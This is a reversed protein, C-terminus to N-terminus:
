TPAPAPQPPSPPALRGTLDRYDGAAALELFRLTGLCPETSGSARFRLLAIADGGRLGRSAVGALRLIGPAQEHWAGIVNPPSAGGLFELIATDFELEADYAGVEVGAGPLELRLEFSLLEADRSDRRLKAVTRIRDSKGSDSSSAGRGEAAPRGPVGDGSGANRVAASRSKGEQAPPVRRTPEAATNGAERVTLSREDQPRSAAENMGDLWALFDTDEFTTNADVADRLWEAWDDIRRGGQQSDHRLQLYYAYRLAALTQTPRAYLWSRGAEIPVGHRRLHWLIARTRSQDSGGVGRLLGAAVLRDGPKLVFAYDGRDVSEIEFEQLVGERQLATLASRITSVVKSPKQESRVGLEAMLEALSWTHPARVGRAARVALMQYVRKATGSSLRNHLDVDIWTTVGVASQELWVPDMRLLRINDRRMEDRTETEVQYDLVHHTAEFERQGALGDPAIPYGRGSDLDRALQHFDIETSTTIRVNAWRRLARKVAEVQPGSPAEGRGAAISISRYSADLFTGDERVAGADALRFLALLYDVDNQTPLGEVRSGEVRVTCRLGDEYRIMRVQEYDEPDAVHGTADQDYSTRLTGRFFEFLYLPSPVLTELLHTPAFLALPSDMRVHGVSRSSRAIQDKKM